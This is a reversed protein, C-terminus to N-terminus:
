IDWLFTFTLAVESGTNLQTHTHSHFRLESM